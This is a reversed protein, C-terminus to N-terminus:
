YTSANIKIFNKHGSTDIESSDWQKVVREDDENREKFRDKLAPGKKLEELEGKSMERVEAGEVNGSIWKNKINEM